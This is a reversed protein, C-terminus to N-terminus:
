ASRWWLDAQQVTGSKHVAGDVALAKLHTKATNIHVGVEEALAKATKGSTASLAELIRKRTEAGKDVTAPGENVIRVAKRGDDDKVDELRFVFPEVEPADKHEPTVVVKGKGSGKALYLAAESWGHLVGAGSMEQGGRGRRTNGQTLKRNHHAILFGCGFDRRLDNLVNTLRGMDPNSNEDLDHVRRLVNLLVVDPRFSALEERLREVWDRSDLKFGTRATFHLWADDPPSVGLGGLLQQVRRALRQRSDEESMLLVRRQRPVAFGLFPNRTTLCLALLCLLWTKAVKPESAVWGVDGHALLGDVLWDPEMEPEALLASIPEAFFRTASEKKRWQEAVGKFVAHTPPIAAVVLRRFEEATHRCLYDDAGIKTIGEAREQKTPRPLRIAAARAGLRELHRMLAYLALLCDAEGAEWVDSDFCVFFRRGRIALRAVDPIVCAPDTYPMTEGGRKWNWVAPLGVGNFGEQTLRAAKKVGETLIVREAPDALRVRVNPLIFARSESGKPQIYKVHHGDGNTFPPFV